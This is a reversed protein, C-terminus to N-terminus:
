YHQKSRNCAACAPALNLISNYFYRAPNAHRFYVYSLFIIGQSTLQCHEGFTRDSKTADAGKPWVVAKPFYTARPNIIGQGKQDVNGSTVEAKLTEVDLWSFFNAKVSRKGPVDKVYASNMVSMVEAIVAVKNTGNTPYEHDIEILKEPLYIGCYHCPFADAEIDKVSGDSHRVFTKFKVKMAAYIHRWFMNFLVRRYQNSKLPEVCLYELKQCDQEVTSKVIKINKTPNDKDILEINEASVYIKYREDKEVTLANLGINYADYYNGIQMNMINVGIYFRGDRAV